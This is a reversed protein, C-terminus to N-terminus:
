LNKLSSYLLKKTLHKFFLIEICKRVYKNFQVLELFVYKKRFINFSLVEGKPLNKQLKPVNM